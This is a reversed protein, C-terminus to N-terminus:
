SAAPPNPQEATTEEEFIDEDLLEEEEQDEEGEEAEEMEEWTLDTLDEFEELSIGSDEPAPSGSVESKPSESAKPATSEETTAALIGGQWFGFVAILTFVFFGLFSKRAIKGM